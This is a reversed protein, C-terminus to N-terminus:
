ESNPEETLARDLPTNGDQDLYVPDGSVIMAERLEKQSFHALFQDVNRKNKGWDFLTLPSRCVSRIVVEGEDLSVTFTGEWSLPSMPVPSSFHDVNKETYNWGLLEFAYVVASRAARRDGVLDRRTEYQAPFGFAM